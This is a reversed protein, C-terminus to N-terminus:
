AKSTLKLAHSSPYLSKNSVQFRGTVWVPLAWVHMTRSQLELHVGRANDKNKLVICSAFQAEPDDRGYFIKDGDVAIYILWSYTTNCYLERVWRPLLAVYRMASYWQPRRWLVGRGIGADLGGKLVIKSSTKHFPRWLQRQIIGSTTLTM